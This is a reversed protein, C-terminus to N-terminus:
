KGNLLNRLREIEQQLERCQGCNVRNLSQEHRTAWRVNNPEYGRNNDIRDVSHKPTPKLGLENYWQEFSTFSFGIGRGGYNRWVHPQTSKCRQQANQYAAYEPSYCLNHTIAHTRIHKKWVCGCSVVVGGTVSSGQIEKQTGCDCAFLYYANFSKNYHAFKLVTLKGYKAGPVLRYSDLFCQRSCYKRVRSPGQKHAHFPRTCQPCPIRTDPRVPLNKLATERSLCGCSKSSGDIVHSVRM